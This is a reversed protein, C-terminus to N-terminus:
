SCTCAGGSDVATTCTGMNGDSKICVVKGTGDSAVGNARFEGVVRADGSVSLYGSGVADPIIILNTGNFYIQGDGGTGLVLADADKLKIDVNGSGISSVFDGTGDISWVLSASNSGTGSVGALPIKFGIGSSVGTGTGRGGELFLATGAGNTGSKASPRITAAVPSTATPGKGIILESVGANVGGLVAQGTANSVAGAGIAISDGYATSQSGIAISDLDLNQCFYGVCVSDSPTGSATTAGGIQVSQDGDCGALAGICVSNTDNTSNGAGISISGAGTAAAAV